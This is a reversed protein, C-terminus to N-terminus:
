DREMMRKRIVFYGSLIFFLLIFSIPAIYDRYYMNTDVVILNGNFQMYEMWYFQDSLIVYATKTVKQGSTADFAEVVLEIKYYYNHTGQSYSGVLLSLWPSTYSSSSILTSNAYSESYAFVWTQNSDVNHYINITYNFTELTRGIDSKYAVVYKPTISYQFSVQFSSIMSGSEIFVKFYIDGGADSWTSGDTSIYGHGGSYVDGNSRYVDVRPNLNVSESDYIVIAYMVGAQLDPPNAFDIRYEQEPYGILTGSTSALINSTPLGGSTTRIEVYVTPNLFGVGFVKIFKLKGSMSPTFTQAIIRNYATGVYTYKGTAAQDLLTGSLYIKFCMDEAAILESWTSGDGSVLAKGGTYADGNYHAWYSTGSTTKIVLAYVVGDSVQPPNSFSVVVWGAASTSVTESALVTTTPVGGSTTRIEVVGSFSGSYKRYFEIKTIVGEGEVVFTQAVYTDLPYDSPITSTQYAVLAESPPSTYWSLLFGKMSSLQPINGLYSNVMSGESYERVVINSLKISGDRSTFVVDYGFAVAAVSSIILILMIAIKSKM